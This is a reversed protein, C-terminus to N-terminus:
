EQIETEEQVTPLQNSSKSLLSFDDFWEYEQKSPNFLSESYDEEEEDEQGFNILANDEDLSISSMLLDDEPSDKSTSPRADANPCRIDIAAMVDDDDFMCASQAFSKSITVEETIKLNSSSRYTNWHMNARIEKPTTNDIITTPASYLCTPVMTSLILITLAIFPLLKPRILIGAYV